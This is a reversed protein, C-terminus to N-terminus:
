IAGMTRAGRLATLRKLSMIDINTPSSDRLMKKNYTSNVQYMKVLLIVDILALSAIRKTRPPPPYNQNQGPVGGSLAPTQREAQTPIKIMKQYLNKKSSKM